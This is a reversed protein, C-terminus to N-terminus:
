CDYILFVESYADILADIKQAIKSKTTNVKKSMTEPPFYWDVNRFSM